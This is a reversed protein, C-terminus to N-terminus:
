EDHGELNSLFDKEDDAKIFSCENINIEHTVSDIAVVISNNYYSVLTGNFDRKSDIPRIMKVLVNRNIYREFHEANRLRRNLGPSSVELFYSQQIFDYEDLFEGLKKSVKECENFSITTDSEIIIKLFWSSGEKEFVIDWLQISLEDLIPIVLHKVKSVINLPKNNKKNM